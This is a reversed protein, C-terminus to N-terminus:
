LADATAPLFWEVIDACPADDLLVLYRRVFIPPGFRREIGHPGDAGPVTQAVARRRAVLGHTVLVRGIPDSSRELRQRVAVPIREAAIMSEAYAFERTTLRGTLVAARRLVSEDPVLGLLNDEGAAAIEQSLVRADIPERALAELFETVTGVTEELARELASAQGGTM